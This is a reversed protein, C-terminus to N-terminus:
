ELNRKQRNFVMDVDILQRLARSSYVAFGVMALLVALFPLAWTRLPSHKADLEARAHVNVMGVWEEVAKTRAEHAAQSARVQNLTETIMNNIVPAHPPLSLSSPYPHHYDHTPALAPCLSPHTPLLPACGFATSQLATADHVKLGRASQAHRAAAGM